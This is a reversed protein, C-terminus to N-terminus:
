RLEGIKVKGEKHLIITNQEGFTARLESDVTEESWLINHESGMFIIGNTPNGSTGKGNRYNLLISGDKSDLSLEIRKKPSPALPLTFEKILNGKRLNLSYIKTHETSVDFLSLRNYNPEVLITSARNEKEYKRSWSWLLKGNFDICYILRDFSGDRGCQLVVVELEEIVRALLPTLGKEDLQADGSIPSWGESIYKGLVKGTSDFIALGGYFPANDKPRMGKSTLIGYKGSQSFAFKPYGAFDFVKTKSLQKDFNDYLTLEGSAEVPEYNTPEAVAIINGKPSVAFYGEIPPLSGILNGSDDYLDTYITRAENYYSTKVFLTAYDKIIAEEEYKWNEGKKSLLKTEKTLKGEPDYFQLLGDKVKPKNKSVAKIFNDETTESKVFFNLKKTQQGFLSVTDGKDKQREGGAPATSQSMSTNVDTASQQSQVAASEGQVTPVPGAAGLYGTVFMLTVSKSMKRM